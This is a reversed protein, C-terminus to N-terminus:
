QPPTVCAYGLAPDLSACPVTPGPEGQPGAPGAPGQCADMACVVALAATVTELTPAPADKGDQGDRGDAGKCSGGCVIRLADALEEVTIKPADKGDVGNRGDKGAPGTHGRPGRKGRLGEAGRTGRLGKKGQVAIRKEIIVKRIEKVVPQIRRIAAKNAKATTEVKESKDLITYLVFLGASGVTMSCLVLLLISRVRM